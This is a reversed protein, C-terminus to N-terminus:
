QSRAADLADGLQEKAQQAADMPSRAKMEELLQAKVTAAEEIGVLPISTSIDTMTALVQGGVTNPSVGSWGRFRHAVQWNSADPYASPEVPIMEFGTPPLDDERVLFGAVRIEEKVNGSHVDVFVVRELTAVAVILGIATGLLVLAVVIGLKKAASLRIV